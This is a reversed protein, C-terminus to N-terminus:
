HQWVLFNYHSWATGDVSTLGSSGNWQIELWGNAAVSIGQSWAMNDWQNSKRVLHYGEVSGNRVLKQSWYSNDTNGIVDQSVSIIVYCSKNFTYRSGGGTGGTLNTGMMVDDEPLGRFTGKATSVVPGGTDM